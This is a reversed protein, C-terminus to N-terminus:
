DRRDHQPISEGHGVDIRPTRSDDDSVIVHQHALAERAQELAAPVVYDALRTVSRLQHPQHILM